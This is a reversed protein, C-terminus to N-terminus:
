MPGKMQRQLGLEHQLKKLMKRVPTLASPALMQLYINSLTDSYLCDDYLGEM